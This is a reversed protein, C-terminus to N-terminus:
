SAPCSTRPPSHVQVQPEPNTLEADLPSGLSRRRPTGDGLPATPIISEKRQHSAKGETLTTPPFFYKM